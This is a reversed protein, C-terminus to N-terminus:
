DRCYGEGARVTLCDKKGALHKLGTGVGDTPRLSERAGNREFVLAKGDFRALAVQRNELDYQMSLRYRDPRDFAEVDLYMGEVGTWRGIYVDASAGTPAVGADPKRESAAPERSCGSLLALAIPVVMRMTM